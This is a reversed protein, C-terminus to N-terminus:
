RKADTHRHVIVVGRKHPHIQCFYPFEGISNFKHIFVKGRKLQMTEGSLGSDFEKGRKPDGLGTGSTVTHRDEDKNTWEVIGGKKIHIPNPLFKSSDVSVYTKKIVSTLSHLIPLRSTIPGSNVRHILNSTVHSGKKNKQEFSLISGLYEQVKEYCYFRALILITLSTVVDLAKWINDMSSHFKADDYVYDMLYLDYYTMYESATRLSESTVHIIQSLESYLETLQTKIQNNQLESGKYKKIIDLDNVTEKFSRTDYQEKINLREEFLEKNRHLIHERLYYYREKAMSENKLYYEYHDRANEEKEDELDVWFLTLEIVWRLSRHVSAYNGVIVNRVSEGIEFILDLFIQLPEIEEGVLDICRRSRKSLRDKSSYGRGIINSIHPGPDLGEYSVFWGINNLMGLLSSLEKPHTALTKEECKKVM